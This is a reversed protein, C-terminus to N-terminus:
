GNEAERCERGSCAKLREMRERLSQTLDRDAAPFVNRLEYPDDSLEYLEAAADPVDVFKRTATRVGYYREDGLTHELLFAKRWVEPEGRGLLPVLSRGDVFGPAKADAWEAFTPAFDINLVMEERERDAPVGPGRVVLPIRIAEEYPTQKQLTLRHEGMMMGNDSTFVIYTDDLEGETRLKAVLNQV